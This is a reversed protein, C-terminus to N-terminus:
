KDNSMAKSIWQTGPFHACVIVLAATLPVAILAGAIGWVWSWFALAVIITLPSLSLSRGQLMPYIFNSIVVQIVCLGAFVILPTTWSGYLIIAFITPPIIGIFNGIIPIYNLLFNLVGWVLALDVGMVFTWLATAVGTMVSTLSTVGIYSRVKGAMEEIAVITERGEAADLERRLKSHFSGIEPLAFSVLIAIFGLYTLISYTSALLLRGYGVLRDYGAEGGLGDVGWSAARATASAYLEAFREQNDAFAQVSRAISFYLGGLFGAFITLLILCAGITGLSAPLVRDIWPKVPWIAAVVIGAVALPMSVAYSAKLAWTVLVVVIIALLWNQTTISSQPM